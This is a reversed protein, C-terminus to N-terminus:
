YFMALYFHATFSLFDEEFARCNTILLFFFIRVGIVMPSGQCAAIIDNPSDKAIIALGYTGDVKLLARKTAELLTIGPKSDLEM